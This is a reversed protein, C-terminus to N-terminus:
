FRFYLFPNYGDRTLYALSLLLGFVTMFHYFVASGGPAREWVRKAWRRVLPTVGVAMVGLIPLNRLLDFALNANFNVLNSFRFLTNFFTIGDWFGLGDVSGDFAFILWGLGVAFLLYGHQLVRSMPALGRGWVFREAALLAFFYVGWLLFNWSAGHWLGTLSWTVLLNVLIRGKGCRSGGLPIYVYERFWTSLTIHWRHWFERVSTAVYPYRFNHPLTFGFMRGLGVAMDSYGSFDYYIQFSFCALGVWASLPNGESLALARFNEWLSGATNALLVKKCLGVTFLGLGKAIGEVTERRGTLEERLDAYRVIPGAILQPYFTLYAGFRVPSTEAPIEGRYVDVGYSMAQFLYFSIGLPLGLGLPALGVTTLLLDAYKFFILILLNLAIGLTLLRKPHAVRPIRRGLIFNLIAVGLMLLLWVPEGWAYFLLSQVLLLGNRWRRPCLYYTGVSLPLFLLLFEISSFLM